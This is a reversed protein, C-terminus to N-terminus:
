DFNKIGIESSLGRRAEDTSLEEQKAQVTSLEARFVGIAWREQRWVGTSGKLRRHTEQRQRQRKASHPSANILTLGVIGKKRGRKGFQM